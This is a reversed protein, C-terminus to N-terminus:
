NGNSCMTNSKIVGAACKMKIKHKIFEQHDINVGLDHSEILKLAEADPGRQKTADWYQEGYEVNSAKILAGIDYGILAYLDEVQISTPIHKDSFESHNVLEKCKDRNPYSNFLLPRVGDCIKENQTAHYLALSETM